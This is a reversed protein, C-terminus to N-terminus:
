IMNVLIIGDFFLQIGKLHTCTVTLAKSMM